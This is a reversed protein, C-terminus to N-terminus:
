FLKEYSFFIWITKQITRLISMQVLILLQLFITIHKIGITHVNSVGIHIRSYGFFVCSFPINTCGTHPQPLLCPAPYSPDIVPKQNSLSLMIM